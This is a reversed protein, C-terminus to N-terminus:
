NGSDAGLLGSYELISNSVDNLEGIPFQDFDEDTLENADVVALRIVDKILGLQASDEKSKTAKKVLEQIKMVEAVSMKRIEVEDGMFPVKKTIQKGVLHKM